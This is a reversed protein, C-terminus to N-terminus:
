FYLCFLILSVLIKNSSIIHIYNTYNHFQSFTTNFAKEFMKLKKDSYKNINFFKKLRKTINYLINIRRERKVKKIFEEATKTTYHM